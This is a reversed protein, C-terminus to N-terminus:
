TDISGVHAFEAPSTQKSIPQHFVTDYLLIEFRMPGGSVAITGDKLRLVVNVNFPHEAKKTELFNVWDTDYAKDVLSAYFQAKILNQYCLDLNKALLTKVQLKIECIFPFIDKEELSFPTQTHFCIEELTTM